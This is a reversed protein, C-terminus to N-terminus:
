LYKFESEEETVVEGAVRKNSELWALFDAEAILYKGRNGKKSPIRYHTLLGGQCAAYVTHKSLPYREAIQVPTLYGTGGETTKTM